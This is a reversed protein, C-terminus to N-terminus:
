LSQSMPSDPLPPPESFPLGAEGRLWFTKTKMCNKAFIARILPQQGRGTKSVKSGGNYSCYKQLCSLMCALSGSQIQVWSSPCVFDLVPAILPEVFHAKTWCFQISLLLGFVLLAHTCMSPVWLYYKFITSVKKPYSYYKQLLQTFQVCFMLAAALCVLSWFMPVCFPYEFLTSLSNHFQCSPREQSVTGMWLKHSPEPIIGPLDPFGHVSPETFLATLLTSLSGKLTYKFLTCVKKPYSYYKQLLQTFQVCFMLAAALCVLSWSLMPVCLYPVCLPYKFLSLLAQRLPRTPLADTHQDPSGESRSIRQVPSGRFPLDESRSIRQVPSGRFPLDESRSIRQVPSGRFPLDESRSIRQVPSGRFPLDESRSIRQVPSWGNSGRCGVEASVHSLGGHQGELPGVSLVRTRWFNLFYFFLKSLFPM